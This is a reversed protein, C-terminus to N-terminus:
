SVRREGAEARGRFGQYVRRGVVESVEWGSVGRAGEQEFAGALM